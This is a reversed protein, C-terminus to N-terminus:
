AAKSGTQAQQQEADAKKRRKRPATNRPRPRIGFPILEESTFGFTGRLMAAARLRLDVGRKELEQRKRVLERLMKRATEQEAELQRGDVVVSAIQEQMQRMFPMQDLKPELNNNMLQLDNIFISFGEASRMDSEEM